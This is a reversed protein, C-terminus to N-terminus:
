IVVTEVEGDRSNEGSNLARRGLSLCVEGSGASRQPWQGKGKCGLKKFATWM